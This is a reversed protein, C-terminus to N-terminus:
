LDARIRYRALAQEMLYLHNYPNPIMTNLKLLPHFQKRHVVFLAFNLKRNLEVFYNGPRLLFNQNALFLRWFFHKDENWDQQITEFTNMGALILELPVINLM